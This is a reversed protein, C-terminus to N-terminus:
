RRLLRHRIMKLITLSEREREELTGAIYVITERYSPIFIKSLANCRRQTKRLERALRMVANQLEALEAVVPLLEVFRLLAIDTSASTGGVGYPAGAPPIQATIKPIKMGMLHQSSLNLEPRSREQSRPQNTQQSRVNVTVAVRELNESGCDLTAERLAAHARGLLEAVRREIEGARGLRSMLEFILIQRKQELLDYGEEAFVLQRKLTLLNSKTPTVNLKSM